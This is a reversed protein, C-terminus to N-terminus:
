RQAVIPANCKSALSDSPTLPRRVANHASVYDAQAVPGTAEWAGEDKGKDQVLEVAQVADILCSPRRISKIHLGHKLLSGPNTM